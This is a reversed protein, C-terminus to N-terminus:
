LDLIVNHCYLDVETVYEDASDYLAEIVADVGNEVSNSLSQMGELSDWVFAKLVSGPEATLKGGFTVTQGKAFEGKMYTMDILLGDKYVAIVLTDKAARDTNKTVTAEAYFSGGQAPIDGNLSVVTYDKDPDSTGEATWHAYLTHNASTAVITDATIRTGGSATTYWGAFIYGSRVPTPLVGYAEGYTVSISATSVSGGNPDFSVTYRGASGGSPIFTVWEGYSTGVSNTAYARYQYEEDYNKQLSVGIYFDSMSGVLNQSLKTETGTSVRRVHFGYETVASGGDSNVTGHIITQYGDDKLGKLEYDGTTVTPATGVVGVTWHAYLTQNTTRNVITASTILDGAGERSSNYWGTFTYGARVPTPLDGYPAGYVVTKSTPSVTGGNANFTVTYTKGPTFSVWEGYSTGAANTAYARCRYTMGSVYGSVSITYSTGVNYTNNTHSLTKIASGTDLEFGFATVTGADSKTVKGKLIMHAADESTVPQETVVVPTGTVAAGPTTFNVWEGYSIGYSNTAYTRYRYSYGAVFNSYTYGYETGVDFKDKRVEIKSKKGETLNELEWGFTEIASGGLSKVTGSLWGSTSTLEDVANTTVTPTTGAYQTWQAYLTHGSSEEVTTSSYIYNGTGNKITNWGDFIYGSRTPVPLEGYDFGQTVTKTRSSAPLNDGNNVNFSVTMTKVTGAKRPIGNNVAYKYAQSSSSAHYITLNDCGNFVGIGITKTSTTIYATELYYCDRFAYNEIETVSDPISVGAIKAGQFAYEGIKTVKVGDITNPIAVNFGDGVYGTITKSSKDFIFDAYTIEASASLCPLLGVVMIMAVLVAFIRKKSYM